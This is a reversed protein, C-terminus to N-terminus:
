GRKNEPEPPTEGRELMTAVVAVVADEINCAAWMLSSSVKPFVCPLEHCTAMYVCRGDDYTEPKLTYTYTRAIKRARVRIADPVLGKIKGEESM